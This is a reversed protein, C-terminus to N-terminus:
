SARAHRHGRARLRRHRPAIRTFLDRKSEADFHHLALALVALDVTGDPLAEELRAVRLDADPLREAARALVAESSDIGTRRQAHIRLATEGTGTGLELVSSPALRKAVAAVADQLARNGRIETLMAALYMAPDWETESM